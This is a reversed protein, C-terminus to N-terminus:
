KQTVILEFEPHEKMLSKLKQESENIASQFTNILINQSLPYKIDFGINNLSGSFEKFHNQKMQRVKFFVRLFPFAFAALVFSLILPNSNQPDIIYLIFSITSFLLFISSGVISITKNSFPISISNTISLPTSNALKIETSKLNFQSFLKYLENIQKQVKIIQDGIVKDKEQITTLIKDVKNMTESLFQKDQIEDLASTSLGINEITDILEKVVVCRVVGDKFMLIKDDIFSRIQYIAERLLRQRESYEKQEQLMNEISGIRSELTNLRNFTQSSAKLSANLKANLIQTAILNGISSVESATQLKRQM